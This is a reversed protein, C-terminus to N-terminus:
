SNENSLTIDFKDGGLKNVQETGERTALRFGCITAWLNM